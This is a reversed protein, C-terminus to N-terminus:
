RYGFKGKGGAFVENVTLLNLHCHRDGVVAGVGNSIEGDTQENVTAKEAFPCNRTAQHTTL